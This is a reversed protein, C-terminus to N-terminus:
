FKKYKWGGMLVPFQADSKLSINGHTDLGINPNEGPYLKIYELQKAYQGILPNVSVYKKKPM